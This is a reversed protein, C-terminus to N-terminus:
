KLINVTGKYLIKDYCRVFYYYTDNTLIKGRFSGDWDNQYDSNSLVKEGFRNYVSVECPQVSTLNLVEWFDNIGDGNPTFLTMIVPNKEFEKIRTTFSKENYCGGSYGKVWFQGSNFITISLTRQGTSWFLSDFSEATSAIVSDGAFFVTDGSFMLNLAPSQGVTIIGTMTDSCGIKTTISFSIHYDGTNAFTHNPNEEYSPFTGDGFDWLYGAVTDGFILSKNYFPVFQGNCGLGFSFNTVVQGVPVLKYLAKVEGGWTMVKLGVSMYGPSLFTHIVTDGTADNFRGDGNIDWWQYRISDGMSPLSLSILTTPNGLCVKTSSFDVTLAVVRVQFMLIIFVIFM